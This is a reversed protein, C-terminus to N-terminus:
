SFAFTWISIGGHPFEPLFFPLSLAGTSALLLAPLVAKLQWSSIKALVLLATAGAFLGALVAIPYGHPYHRAGFALHTKLRADAYTVAAATCAFALANLSAIKVAFGDVRKMTLPRVPDAPLRRSDLNSADHELSYLRRDRCALPPPGPALVRGF